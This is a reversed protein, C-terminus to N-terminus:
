DVAQRMFETLLASNNQRRFTKDFAEDVDFPVRINVTAM